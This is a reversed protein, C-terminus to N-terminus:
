KEIICGFAKTKEVEIEKCALANRLADDLYNETVVTRKKGTAYMKNDISGSYHITGTSDILFVEPTISADLLSVLHHESDMLLPLQIRYSDKFELLKKSTIEKEPFVLYFGSQQMAYKESLENIVTIYNKCLPCDTDFFLIVSFRNQKLQSLSVLNGKENKLEMSFIADPKNGCGVSLLSIGLVLVLVKFWRM